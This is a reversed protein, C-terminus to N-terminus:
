RTAQITNHFDRPAAAEQSVPHNRILLRDVAELTLVANIEQVHNGRGAVHEGALRDLREGNWFPSRRAAIVHDSVYGALERRFWRRYRLYKHHGLVRIRGHLRDFISDLPSLWHPLGENSIYDLKFTADALMRTIAERVGPEEEMRGRDTPLGALRPDNHRVLRLASRASARVIEPARFALAVLRNDLYPTRFTTQSRCAALSGFLAWPTESFAAAAVPHRSAASPPLLRAMSRRMEPDILDTSLGLPKVTTIGRLIEGGFVGTLRVRALQRARASLYLEHAGTIGLCGDTVYVSRDAHSAFDSLFDPGIRVVSHELGCIHALRAALRVDLTDGQTGAYTYCVLDAANRPRCAMIIRTDLGGTLAVGIPSGSEFYRPLISIFTEQLAAEFADPPLPVQSGWTAPDFYRGKECHGHRFTWLSGGALARVGRFLTQSTLTCGFTLFQSVGGEDFARSEPVVRLLAKAESAFYVADRTECSYLREIGYRDNFLFARNCRRDILLGSFLGNLKEFFADGEEEYLHILWDAAAPGVAHGRRRLETRTDSEAFCEGSFILAVDRTENYLVQGAAFSGEHTVWGAYVGMDPVCFTGSTCFSDHTMSRLMSLVLSQCGEPPKQSIMGVIGPM